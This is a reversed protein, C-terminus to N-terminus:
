EIASLGMKTRDEPRFLHEGAPLGGGLSPESELVAMVALPRCSRLGSGLFDEGCFGGSVSGTDFCAPVGTDSAFCGTFASRDSELLLALCKPYLESEFGVITVAFFKHLSLNLEYYSPFFCSSSFSNPSSKGFHDLSSGLNM